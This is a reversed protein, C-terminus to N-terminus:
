SIQGEGVYENAEPNSYGANTRAQMTTERDKNSVCYIADPEGLVNGQADMYEGAMVFVNIVTDMDAYKQAVERAAQIAEDESEYDRAYQMDDIGNENEIDFIDLTFIEHRESESLGKLVKKISKKVAEAIPDPDDGAFYSDHNVYDRAHSRDDDYNVNKDLDYFDEYNDRHLDAIGAVEDYADWSANSQAKKSKLKNAKPEIFGSIDGDNGYDDMSMGATTRGLWNKELEADTEGPVAMHMLNRDSTERLISRKILERLKSEKIKIVQKM